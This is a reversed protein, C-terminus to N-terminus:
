MGGETGRHTVHGTVAGRDGDAEVKIVITVTHAIGIVKERL